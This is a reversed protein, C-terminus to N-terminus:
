PLDLRPRDAPCTACSHVYVLDGAEEEGRRELFSNCLKVERPEYFPREITSTANSSGGTFISLSPSLWFPAM